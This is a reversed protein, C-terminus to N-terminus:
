SVRGRFVEDDAPLAGWVALALDDLIRWGSGFNQIEGIVAALQEQQEVTVTIAVVQEAM